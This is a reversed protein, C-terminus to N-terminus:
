VCGWSQGSTIMLMVSCPMAAGPARPITPSLLLSARAVIATTIWTSVMYGQRATGATTISAGHPTSSPPPSLSPSPPSMPMPLIVASRMSTEITGSSRPRCPSAVSTTTRGAGRSRASTTSSMTTPIASVAPSPVSSTPCGVACSSRWGRVAVYTGRPSSVRRIRMAVSSGKSVGSGTSGAWHWRPISSVCM